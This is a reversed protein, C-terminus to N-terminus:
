AVWISMLRKLESSTTGAIDAKETVLRQRMEQPLYVWDFSEVEHIRIAVLLTTINNALDGDGSWQGSPAKRLELFTTGSKDSFKLSQNLPDLKADTTIGTLMKILYRLASFDETDIQVLANLSPQQAGKVFTIVKERSNM